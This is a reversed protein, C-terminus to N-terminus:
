NAFLMRAALFRLREFDLRLLRLRDLDRRLRDLDRRFRDLDRLRELLRRREIRLM